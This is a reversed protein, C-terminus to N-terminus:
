NLTWNSVYGPGRCSFVDNCYQAGASPRSFQLPRNCFHFGARIPRARQLRQTLGDRGDWPALMYDNQVLDSADLSAKVVEASRRLEAPAPIHQEVLNLGLSILPRQRLTLGVIERFGQRFIERLLILDRNVARAASLRASRIRAKLDTIFTAYDLTIPSKTKM